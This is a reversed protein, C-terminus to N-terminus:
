FRNGTLNILLIAVFYKKREHCRALYAHTLTHALDWISLLWLIVLRSCSQKAFRDAAM